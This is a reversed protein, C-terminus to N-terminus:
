HELFRITNQHKRNHDPDKTRAAMDHLSSLCINKGNIPCEAGIVYAWVSEKDFLQNIKFEADWQRYNLLPLQLGNDKMKQEASPSIVFGIWNYREGYKHAQVLAQGLFILNSKDSYLEDCSMSGRVPIKKHILGRIFM